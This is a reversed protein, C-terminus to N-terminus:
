FLRKLLLPTLLGLLVGIVLLLRLSMTRQRQRERENPDPRRNQGEHPQMPSAHVSGGESFLGLRTSARLTGTAGLIVM